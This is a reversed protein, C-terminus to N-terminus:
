AASSFSCGSNVSVPGYPASQSPTFVALMTSIIVNTPRYKDYKMGNRNCRSSFNSRRNFSTVIPGNLIEVKM